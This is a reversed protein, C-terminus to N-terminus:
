FPANDDCDTSDDCVILDACDHWNGQEDCYIEDGCDALDTQIGCYDTLDHDAVGLDCGDDAWQDNQIAMQLETLRKM